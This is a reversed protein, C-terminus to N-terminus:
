AFAELLNNNINGFIERTHPESIFFYEDPHGDGGYLWCLKTESWFIQVTRWGNYDKLKIIDNEFMMKGNKDTRGTCRCVTSPNVPIFEGMLMKGDEKCTISLKPCVYVGPFLRDDELVYGEVWEDNDLRKAKVLHCANKDNGNM